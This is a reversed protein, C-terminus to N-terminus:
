TPGARSEAPYVMYLGMYRTVAIDFSTIKSSFKTLAVDRVTGTRLLSPSKSRLKGSYM